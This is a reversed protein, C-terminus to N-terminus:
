KPIDEEKVNRRNYAHITSINGKINVVGMVSIIGGLFLLIVNVM